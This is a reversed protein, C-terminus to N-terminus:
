QSEKGIEYAKVWKGSDPRYLDGTLTDLLVPSEGLPYVRYHGNETHIYYSALLGFGLLLALIRTIKDTMAYDIFRRLCLTTKATVERV